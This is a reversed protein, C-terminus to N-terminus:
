MPEVELRVISNGLLEKGARYFGEIENLRFVRPAETQVVMVGLLQRLDFLPLGLYSQLREEGSGPVYHYEPHRAPYKVSVPQKMRAVRGTLGSGVPLRYGIASSLLGASAVLVLEEAPEDYVYLTCVDVRLRRALLVVADQPTTPMTVM